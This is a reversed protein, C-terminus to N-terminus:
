TEDEARATNDDPTRDILTGFPDVGAKAPEEAVTVEWTFPGAEKRLRESALVGGSGDLVAFELVDNMPVTTEAGLADAEM